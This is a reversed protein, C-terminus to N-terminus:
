GRPEILGVKRAGCWLEAPDARVLDAAKAIAEADGAAAIEDFRRFRGNRVHYLRYDQV